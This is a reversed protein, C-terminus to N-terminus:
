KLALLKGYGLLEDSIGLLRLAKWATATNSSVVAKGLEAELKGIIEVTRFNTCSIFVGDSDSACVKKALAYATDPDQLGIDLNKALGLSNISVVEFGNDRLFRDELLEIKKTYPTAVSVRKVDLARLAEVVAGATAVAPIQAEKEIRRVIEKDHGLGGLLSGSTCGYCIVNVNADSLQGAAHGTEREMTELQSATVEQLRIRTSHVTAYASMIRTFEPEMTTNSSPLILGIRYMERKLNLMTRLSWNVKQSECM